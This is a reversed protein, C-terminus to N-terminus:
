TETQKDLLRGLAVTHSKEEILDRDREALQKRLEEREDRLRAIEARLEVAHATAGDVIVKMEEVRGRQEAIGVRTSEARRDILKMVLAVLGAFGSSILAIWVGEPM